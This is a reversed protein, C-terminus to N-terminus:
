SAAVMSVVNALDFDEVESWSTASRDSTHRRTSFKNKNVSLFNYQSIKFSEPNILM